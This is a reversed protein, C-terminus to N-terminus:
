HWLGIEWGLILWHASHWRGVGRRTNKRSCTIMKSYNIFNHCSWVTITMFWNRVGINTLTCLGRGVIGRTHNRCCPM